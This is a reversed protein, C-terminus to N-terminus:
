GINKFLKNQIREDLEMRCLEVVSKYFIIYDRHYVGKCVHIAMNFISNLEEYSLKAIEEKVPQVKQYVWNTKHLRYAM